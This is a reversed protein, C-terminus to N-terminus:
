YLHLYSDQGWGSIKEIFTNMQCDTVMRNVSPLSNAERGIFAIPHPLHQHTSLRFTKKIFNELPLHQQRISSVVCYALEFAGYPNFHTNDNLEEPQNPFTHAPYHVFAKVSQQEGWAEYMTKSMANLDVLAVREESAVQRMAAPYDLLTNVIHGAADFSRRNM